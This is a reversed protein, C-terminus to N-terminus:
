RVQKSLLDHATLAPRRGFRTAAPRQKEHYRSMAPGIVQYKLSMTDGTRLMITQSPFLAVRHIFGREDQYYEWSPVVTVPQDRPHIIVWKSEEFGGGGHGGPCGTRVGLQGPRKAEFWAYYHDIQWELVVSRGVYDLEPLDELEATGPSLKTVPFDAQHRRSAYAQALISRKTLEYKVFFGTSGRASVMIPVLITDGVCALPSYQDSRDRDPWQAYERRAGREGIVVPMEHSYPYEREDEGLVHYTYGISFSGPKLATARLVLYSREYADTALEGHQEAKLEPSFVQNFKHVIEDAIAKDQARMMEAEASGALSVVVVATCAKTWTRM